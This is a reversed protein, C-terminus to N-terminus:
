YITAAATRTGRACMYEEFHCVLGACHFSHNLLFFFLSTSAPSPPPPSFCLISVIGQGQFGILSIQIQSQPSRREDKVEYSRRTARKRCEGILKIERQEDRVCARGREMRRENCCVSVFASKGHHIPETSFSQGLEVGPPPCNM